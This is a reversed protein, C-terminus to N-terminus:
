PQANASHLALIIGRRGFDAPCGLEFIQGDSFILGERCVNYQSLAGASHLGSSHASDANSKIALPHSLDSCLELGQRAVAFSRSFVLQTHAPVAVTAVGCEQLTKACADLTEARELESQPVTMTAINCKQLDKACTALIEINQPESRRTMCALWTNSLRLRRRYLLIVVTSVGLLVFLTRAM